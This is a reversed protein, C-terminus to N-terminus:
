QKKIIKLIFKKFKLYNITNRHSNVLLLYCFIKESATRMYRVRLQIRDNNNIYEQNNEIYIRFEKDRDNDNLQDNLIDEAAARMLVVYLRSVQANILDSYNLVDLEELIRSIIILFGKQLQKNKRRVRSNEVIQYNYLSESLITIKPTYLLLM